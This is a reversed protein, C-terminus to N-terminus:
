KMTCPKVMATPTMDWTTPRSTKLSRYLNRAPVGRLIYMFHALKLAMEHPLTRGTNVLMATMPIDRKGREGGTDDDEVLTNSPITYEQMAGSTSPNAVM